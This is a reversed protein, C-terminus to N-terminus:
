ISELYTALNRLFGGFEQPKFLTEKLKQGIKDKDMKKDGIGSALLYLGRLGDITMKIEPKSDDEVKPIDKEIKPLVIPIDIVKAKEESKLMPINENRKKIRSIQMASINFQKQTDLYTHDKLFAMIEQDKAPNIVRVM